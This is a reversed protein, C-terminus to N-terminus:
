SVCTHTLGLVKRVMEPTYRSIFVQHKGLEKSWVVTLESQGIFGASDYIMFDSDNTLVGAYKLQPPYTDPLIEQALRATHPDSEYPSQILEINDFSRAVSRFIEMMMVPPRTKPKTKQLPSNTFFKRNESAKKLMRMRATKEKKIPDCGDLVITLYINSNRFAHLFQSLYIVFEDYDGGNLCDLGSRSLLQFIFCSGDVLIHV